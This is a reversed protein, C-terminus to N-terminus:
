VLSNIRIHADMKYNVSEVRFELLHDGSTLYDKNILIWFGGHLINVSSGSEGLREPPIGYVNDTPIGKIALPEKRIVCCPYIAQRDFEAKIPYKANNIIIGFLDSVVEVLLKEPTDLSPFIEESAFVNYAPVLLHGNTTLTITKVDPDHFPAATTFYVSTDRKQFLFANKGGYLVTENRNGEGPNSYPNTAAPTTLFWKFWHDTALNCNFVKGPLLMDNHDILPQAGQVNHHSAYWHHFDGTMKEAAKKDKPSLSKQSINGICQKSIDELERQSIGKVCAGKLIGNSFLNEMEDATLFPKSM